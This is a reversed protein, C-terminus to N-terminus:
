PGRYKAQLFWQSPSQFTQTWYWSIIRHHHFNTEQFMLPTQGKFITDPWALFNHKIVEPPWRLKLDTMFCAQIAPLCMDQTESKCDASPVVIGTCVNQMYVYKLNQKQLKWSGVLLTAGFTVPPLSWSFVSSRPWSPVTSHRLWPYGTGLILRTDDM